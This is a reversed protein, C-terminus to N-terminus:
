ITIIDGECIRMDENTVIESLEENLLKQDQLETDTDEQNAHKNGENGEEDSDNDNSLLKKNLDQQHKQELQQKFEVDKRLKDKSTYSLHVAGRMNYIAVFKSNLYPLTCPWLKLTEFECLGFGM